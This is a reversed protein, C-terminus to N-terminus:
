EHLFRFLLLHGLHFCLKYFFRNEIWTWAKAAVMIIGIGLFINGFALFIDAM